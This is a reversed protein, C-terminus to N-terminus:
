ADDEDEVRLIEYLQDLTKIKRKYNQGSKNNFGNVFKVSRFNLAEKEWEALNRSYDDVLYVTQKSTSFCFKDDAVKAKNEGVNCLLIHDYHLQPLWMKLWAIKEDRCFPSEVCASIIYIKSWDLIAADRNLEKVLRYPELGFFFGEEYMRELCHEKDKYFKALTGDMDFCVIQYDNITQKM